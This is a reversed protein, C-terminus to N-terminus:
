TLHLRDVGARNIHGPDIGDHLYLVVGCRVPENPDPTVKCQVLEPLHLKRPMTENWLRGRIRCGM